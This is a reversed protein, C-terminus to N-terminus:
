IHILSLQSLMRSVECLAPRFDDMWIHAEDRVISVVRHAQELVLGRFYTNKELKEATTYLFVAKRITDKFIQLEDNSSCTAGWKISNKAHESVLTSLPCIIITLGCQDRSSFHSSLIHGALLWILTKGSSTAMVTVTHTGSLINMIVDLQKSRFNQINSDVNQAIRLLDSATPLEQQPMGKTSVSSISSSSDSCLAHRLAAIKDENSQAGNLLALLSGHLDANMQYYRQGKVLALNVNDFLTLNDCEIINYVAFWAARVTLHALGDCRHWVTAEDFPRM